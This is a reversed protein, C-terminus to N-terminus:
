EPFAVTPVRGRQTRKRTATVTRYITELRDLV